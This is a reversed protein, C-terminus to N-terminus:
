SGHRGGSGMGRGNGSGMGRGKGSGMGGGNGSGTCGGSSRRSGGGMARRCSGGAGRGGGVGMGQGSPTKSPGDERPEMHDATGAVGSGSKEAVTAQTSPLLEGMSYSEVAERVTGTRGTFVEIGGASLTKMANPGCNGTLVAAAGRSALFSASQIGAGGGLANNENELVTFGMDDTEVMVFYSCRGFRPDIPSDLNGGTSSVAVKM